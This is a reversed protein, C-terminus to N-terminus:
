VAARHDSSERARRLAYYTPYGLHRAYALHRDYHEARRRETLALLAHRVYWEHCEGDSKNRMGPAHDRILDAFKDPQMAHKAMYGASTLRRRTKIPLSRIYDWEGGPQRHRNWTPMAEGWAVVYLM